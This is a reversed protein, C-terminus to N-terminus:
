HSPCGFSNSLGVLETGIFIRNEVPQGRVGFVAGLAVLAVLSGLWFRM